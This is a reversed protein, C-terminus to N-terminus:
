PQFSAVQSSNWQTSCEKLVTRFLQELPHFLQKAGNLLLAQVTWFPRKFRETSALSDDDARNQALIIGNKPTKTTMKLWIINFWLFTQWRQWWKAVIWCISVCNFLQLTVNNCRFEFIEIIFYLYPDSISWNHTKAKSDSRMDLLTEDVRTGPMFM